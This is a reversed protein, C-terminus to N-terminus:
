FGLVPWAKERGAWVDMVELTIGLFELSEYKLDTSVWKGHIQMLYPPFVISRLQFKLIHHDM